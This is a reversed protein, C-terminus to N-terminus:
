TGTLLDLQRVPAFLERHWETAGLRRLAELHEPTGYGVNHEWGYGPHAEALKKMLRDRTVKAIISAAAISLCKGDGAIIAVATCALPQPVRNGDILATDIAVALGEIARKMALMSAWLINFRAIEGVTAEAVCHRCSQALPAFLDERAQPSMKKSDRIEKKIDRPLAIPLIVAAAMVPGALPGRGAEDVGCVIKGDDFGYRKEHLLTPM